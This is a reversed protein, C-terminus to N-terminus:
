KLSSSLTGREKSSFQFSNQYKGLNYRKGAVSYKSKSTSSSANGKSNKNGKTSVTQLNCFLSSQNHSNIESKKAKALRKRNRTNTKKPSTQIVPQSSCVMAMEEIPDSEIIPGDPKLAPGSESENSIRVNLGPGSVEKGVVVSKKNTFKDEDTPGELRLGHFTDTPSEVQSIWSGTRLKQLCVENVGSREELGRSQVKSHGKIQHDIRVKKRDPVSARMWSGYKTSEGKLAEIKAEEDSCNKSAHGIRGCVYCFKPLREYKLSVMVINNSKDLKLRLWRKLPKSIDIQVKVKMFKGWCDKSETPIDIVCGEPKELVILSKDFYWPGRQWIRNREVQNNFHFMFINLGMSEIEVSGFPSWLQEILNKFAERNVRKSSLIKGVLCLDVEAEGDRQDEESMEHIAGDEDALSLNEYLKVIKSEVM